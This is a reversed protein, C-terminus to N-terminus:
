LYITKLRNIHYPMLVNEKCYVKGHKIGIIKNTIELCVKVHHEVIVFAIGHLKNVAKIYALICEVNPQSLGIFPEDFLIVKPKHLISMAITLLQREGGSLTMPM